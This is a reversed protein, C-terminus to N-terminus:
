RNGWAARAEGESLMVPFYDPAGPDRDQELAEAAHQLEDVADVVREAAFYVDEILPDRKEPHEITHRVLVRLARQAEADASRRLDALM